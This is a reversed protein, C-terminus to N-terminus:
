PAVEIYKPAEGISVTPGQVTSNGMHDTVLLQGTWSNFMGSTFTVNTPTVTVGTKGLREGSDKWAVIVTSSDLKTFVYAEIQSNGTEGPTLQREYTAGALKSTLIQFATHVPKPSLDNRLVGYGWYLWDYDRVTFWIAFELGAVMSRVYVQAPYMSQLTESRQTWNDAPGSMVGVESSAFPMNRLDYAGPKYLKNDRIHKIKGLIEQNYPQPDRGATPGGGGDWENRFDNYNHLVWGDVFPFLPDTGYQSYLYDLSNNIFNYSFPGSSGNYWSPRSSPSFRDYAASGFWIRVDPNAGGGKVATYVDHVLEAYVQPATLVWSPVSGHGFCGAYDVEGRPNDSYDFDPENIIEWNKAVPKVGLTSHVPADDVGDGDYREVAAAVFAVFDAADEPDMPGCHYIGSAHYAGIPGGAQEIAWDPHRSITILPSLGKQVARAILTDYGGWGYSHAGANPANPEVGRWELYIRVWPIGAGNILASTTSWTSETGIEGLLQVGFPGSRGCPEGLRTGLAVFDAVNIKNDVVLDFDPNWNPDSSTMRWQSGMAVFDGVDISLSGDFDLTNCPLGSIDVNAGYSGEPRPDITRARAMPGPVLLLVLVVVSPLILRRM